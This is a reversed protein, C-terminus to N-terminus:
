QGNNATRIKEVEKGFSKRLELIVRNVQYRDSLDVPAYSDIFIYNLTISFERPLTYSLSPNVHIIRTYSGTERHEYKDVSCYLGGNLSPLLELKATIGAGYRKDVDITTGSYESYSLTLGASGRQLEKTLTFTYDTERTVGSTPDIPYQVGAALSATWTNFAHTIGTNWYPKNYDDGNRSDHFTMGGQANIFSRDAYVYKAGIYANNRDYAERSNEHTYTHNAM